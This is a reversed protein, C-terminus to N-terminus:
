EVKSFEKFIKKSTNRFTYRLVREDSRTATTSRSYNRIVVARNTKIDNLSNSVNIQSTVNYMSRGSVVGIASMGLSMEDSMIFNRNATGRLVHTVGLIRELDQNTLSDLKALTVGNKDLIAAIQDQGLIVVDQFQYKRKQQTKLLYSIMLQQYTEADQVRKEELQEPTYKKPIRGDYFVKYPLVAITTTAFSLISFFFSFFFLYLKNM